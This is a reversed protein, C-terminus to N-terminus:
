GVIHKECRQYRRSVIRLHNRFHPRMRETWPTNAAERWATSKPVEASTLYYLALYRQAAAGPPQRRGQMAAPVSERAAGTVEEPAIPLFRKSTARLTFAQSSTPTRAICSMSRRM